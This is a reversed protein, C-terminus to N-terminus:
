RRGSLVSGVAERDTPQGCQRRDRPAAFSSGPQLGKAATPVGSPGDNEGSTCSDNAWLIIGEHRLDISTRFRLM